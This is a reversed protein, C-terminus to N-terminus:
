NDHTCPTMPLLFSASLTLTSILLLVVYVLQGGLLQHERSVAYLSTACAPGITRMFSAMTQSLGNTTGLAARAPAASRIFLFIVALFLKGLSYVIPHSSQLRSYKSFSMSTITVLVVGICALLWLIWPCPDTSSNNATSVAIPFLMWLPFFACISVQYMRKAGWREVLAATCLVQFTGNFIGMGGMFIGITRPTLSLPVSALYVPLIALYAINCLALLSYNLVAIIVPATIVTKLPPAVVVPPPSPETGAQHGGLLPTSESVLRSSQFAPATQLLVVESAGGPWVGLVASVERLWLLVVFFANLSVAAVVACPLFYPFERWFPRDFWDWNEAPHSLM